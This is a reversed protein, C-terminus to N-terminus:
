MAHGYERKAQEELIVLMRSLNGWRNGVKHRNLWVYGPSVNGVFARWLAVGIDVLKALM